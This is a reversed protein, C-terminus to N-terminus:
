PITVSSLEMTAGPELIWSAEETSIQGGEYVIKVPGIGEALYLQTSASIVVQRSKGDPLTVNLEFFAVEHIGLAIYNGAPVGIDRLERTEHFLVLKGGNIQAAVKEGDYPLIITGTPDVEIDWTVPNGLPLLEAPTPLYNGRPNTVAVGTGLDPHGVIGPPIGSLAGDLCNMTSAQGDMVLTAGDDITVNQTISKTATLTTLEYTWSAGNRLPWLLHDCPGGPVASVIEPQSLAPTLTPQVTNTATPAIPAFASATPIPTPLSPESACGSMSMLLLITLCIISRTGLQHMFMEKISDGM